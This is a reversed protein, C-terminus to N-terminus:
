RYVFCQKIFVPPRPCKTTTDSQQIQQCFTLRPLFDTNKVGQVRQIHYPYLLQQHLIRWLSNASIGEQMVVRRASTGPNVEVGGLVREEIDPALTKPRGTREQHRFSGNERLSQHIRTLTRSKPNRRNSFAKAYLHAIELANGNANGYMFHIDTNEVISYKEEM